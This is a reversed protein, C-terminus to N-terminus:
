WELVLFGLYPLARECTLLTGAQGQTSSVKARVPKSLPPLVTARKPPASTGHMQVEVTAPDPSGNFIVAFQKGDGAFHIPNLHPGGTVFASGFEGASLFRIASQLIAQRQYSPALGGGRLDAGPDPAAYTIVRGGRRNEYAVIGPAVRERQPTVITTWEHAGRRRKLVSIRPLRLITLHFGKRVGAENSVVKAMAYASEERSLWQTVDVGIDPGFGRQCLIDASDGDLLLGGALMERLEEDDFAWALSGFVANVQQHGASVPVGNPLLFDAPGSFSARLEDMSQGDSTHIRAAADTRWPIGVGRTEFHKAFRSSIWELAPRSLDLLRGIGADEENAPNGCIPFVELLLADSGFFMALAMDAWTMSDSKVWHTYPYNEIEPAVECDPPQPRRQVDLMMFSFAKEKGLSERYAAYGPRFAVKGDISFADFLRRWDRGEISHVSPHSSMLGIKTEGPANEAVADALERALEEQLERWTGMWKARWPHPKGPRLINKVVEQRTVERGVKQAFRALVGPEFGGGWTIPPHNHYRYDDDVWIVRFGLTAFRGYLECLDRRWVPDAFSGCSKSLEGRPSVMPEYRSGEPFRCGRDNHGITVWVNLSVVLGDGELVAKAKKLANFWRTQERKTLPGYNWDGVSLFLVVEEVAHEKCFEGLARADSEVSRGPVIQFRLHYRLPKSM